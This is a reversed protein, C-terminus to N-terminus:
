ASRGETALARVCFDRAELYHRMSSWLEFSKFRVLGTLMALIVLAEVPASCPRISGDGQGREIGIVFAELFADYIAELHTRCTPNVSALQHPYTRFLLQFAVPNEESLRFFLMIVGEVLSLGDAIEADDVFQEVQPVIEDHIRELVSILLDDKNKFHHFITGEAAGTLKSLEAVSADKFGREAYLHTAADIIAERYSM